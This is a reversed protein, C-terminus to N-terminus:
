LKSRTIGVEEVIVWPCVVSGGVEWSRVQRTERSAGAIRQLIGKVNDSVRVGKLVGEVKGGKVVFAGDRPMTSFDGMAYNNFRTYWVNTIWVGDGLEELLEERALEGKGFILNWPRPALIGANGTSRTGYKRATSANHLYSKLTGEELIVNRRTPSGEEDFSRSLLGGPLAADDVLEVAECAVREGLLNAFFSMGAEVSFVSAARDM